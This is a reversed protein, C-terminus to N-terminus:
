RWARPQESLKWMMQDLASGLDAKRRWANALAVWCLGNRARVMITSTGPLAGAHWWNGHRNVGWGSAYNGNAATPRTMAKMTEPQLLDPVSKFGDYHLLFRVVDPASSIWGGHSDMRKVNPEYPDWAEKDPYYVVEGSAREARTNTGIRMGGAGSPQLVAEMVYQSYPKGSVQEIVRGLICYGFNSYAYKRGPKSTPPEHYIVSQILTKADWDPAAFMPDNGDNTWAGVTHTLLHDITIERTFDDGPALAYESGFVSDKGFVRDGTKLKGQEVLTFIAAATIPKSISAIRFLSDPTVPENDERSALGFGESYAIEGRHAFCVSLGPVDYKKMLGEVLGAMRRREKNTVGAALAEGPVAPLLAGAGVAAAGHLLGRRTIEISM